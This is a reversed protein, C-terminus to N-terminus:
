FDSINRRSFHAVLLIIVSIILMSNINKIKEVILSYEAQVFILTSPINHSNHYKNSIESACRQDVFDLIYNEYILGLFIVVFVVLFIKSFINRQTYKKM